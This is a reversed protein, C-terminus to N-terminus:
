NEEQPNQKLLRKVCWGIPYPTRPFSSAAPAPWEARARPTCPHVSPPSLGRSGPLAVMGTRPDVFQVTIHQNLTTSGTVVVENFGFHDDFSTIPGDSRIHVDIKPADLVDVQGGDLGFHFATALELRTAMEGGSLHVNTCDPDEADSVGDGGNDEGDYCAGPNETGPDEITLDLPLTPSITATLEFSIDTTSVEVGTFAFNV